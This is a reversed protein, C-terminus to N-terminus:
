QAWNYFAELRPSLSQFIATATIIIAIINSSEVVDCEAGSHQMPMTMEHTPPLYNNHEIKSVFSAVNEYESAFGVEM